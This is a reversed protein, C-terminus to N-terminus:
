PMGRKDPDHAACGRVQLGALRAQLTAHQPNKALIPVWRAKRTLIYFTRLRM